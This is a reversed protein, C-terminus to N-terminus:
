LKITLYLNLGSTRFKTKGNPTYGELMDEEDFLEGYVDELMSKYKATGTFGEIGLGFRGWTVEGGYTFTTKYSSRVDDDVILMSYSPIVHFFAKIKLKSVPNVTFSPGIALGMDLSYYGIHMDDENDFWDDDDYWSGDNWEDDYYTDDDDDVIGTYIEKDKYKAFKIDLGLDLGIKLMNAIPKKHFYIVRGHSISLAFQSEYKDNIDLNKMGGWMYGINWYKKRNWIKQSAFNDEMGYLISSSSANASQPSDVYSHSSENVAQLQFADAHVDEASLTEQAMSMMSFLSVCSILFVKKM